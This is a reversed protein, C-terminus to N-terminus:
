RDGYRGYYMGYNEVSDEVGNLVVGNIAINSNGFRNITAILEKETTENFRAVLLTADSHQAIIVADTVALAPPTDIIIYEYHQKAWQILKDLAPQMFLEGPNGAKQSGIAIFDLNEQVTKQVAKAFDKVAGSLIDSLGVTNKLSFLEHLYGKRLDADILLVKKSGQAIVAALNSSIFSKGVEPQSGTLAIVENKGNDSFYLGTRLARIAEISPDEPDNIAVVNTAASPAATRQVLKRLRYRKAEAESLPVVAWVKLGLDEVEASSQVGKKMVTKVLFWGACLLGGLLAGLLIIAAKKPKVPLDASMARDIVRVNGQASARLIDLEQQKNLLQVYVAQNIEVDRSLRIIDQQTAPMTSIQRNIQNKSRNLVSLKDLVTKYAPHEPTYIEKLGAEETRLEVIQMEIKALAELASKAETVLDLSGNKSRYANLADEADSLRKELRPLEEQIFNLGSGATRVSKDRNQALYNDIIRNLIQENAQPNEGDYSLGIIPSNRGRTAVSLNKRVADITNLYSSKSLSFKDGDEASLRRVTIHANDAGLALPVNVSGSLKEKDPLTLTYSGSGEAKLTFTKDLWDEPIDFKEIVLEPPNEKDAFLRGVLPFYDPATHIQLNLDEVAKGIVLRSNILEVEAEAPPAQINLSGMLDGFISNQPKDVELLADARYLPTASFAYLAAIVAGALISAGIHYKRLLLVNILRSLDIEDDSSSTSRRTTDQPQTM